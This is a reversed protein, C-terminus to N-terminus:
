GFANGFAGMLDDDKKETNTAGFANGFAGMLDDDKKPEPKSFANGFASSMDADSPKSGNNDGGGWSM